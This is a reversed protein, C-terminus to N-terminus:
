LGLAQVKAGISISNSRKGQNSSEESDVGLSATIILILMSMIIVTITVIAVISINLITAVIIYPASTILELMEKKEQSPWLVMDCSLM